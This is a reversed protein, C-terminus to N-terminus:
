SSFVLEDNEGITINSGWALTVPAKGNSDTGEAQIAQSIVQLEFHKDEYVESLGAYNVTASELLSTTYGDPTVPYKYYYYDGKKVWGTNSGPFPNPAITLQTLNAELGTGKGDATRWVPVLAVRIYANVTGANRIQVNKKAATKGLTVIGDGDSAENGHDEGGNGGEWVENDVEGLKFTNVLGGPSSVLWAISGAVVTGALALAALGLLLMKRYKSVFTKM